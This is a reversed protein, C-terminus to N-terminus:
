AWGGRHPRALCVARQVHQARSGWRDRDRLKDNPLYNARVLGNYGPELYRFEGGLDIGRKTM